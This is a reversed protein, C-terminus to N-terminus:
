KVEVSVQRIVPYADGNASRLTLRYQLARDAAPLPFEGAAVPRWPARPLNAADAASRVAVDVTSGFRKAAEVQVRGIRAAETWTFARSQFTEEYRRSYINGIDQVWMYHPGHVPLYQVEPCAFRHGDNFYIPSETLHGADVSHATFALDLRGDGNFDAIVVESASDVTLATRRLPAFGTASGWFIYSPLRERSLEGHYHPSVIDLFGDGDVDAVALGLPTMGPLWQANSQRWGAAGGWYLTTGTDHHHAVRDEYSAVLLDLWGDGNLDAAELDIPGATTLDTRHDNGYGRPGGWYTVVKDAKYCGVVIDLWGDRDFDAILCGISRGPVRVSKRQEKNFGQASGYYIVLETEDSGPHEFSGLVLDLYGDGNLDAVNISGLGLERLVQHRSPDYRTPGPGAIAGTTGGWYINAGVAPDRAQDEPGVDGGDIVVLDVRGDGNLDAASSKYGSRNAIESMSQRSFGKASGWYLQLPVAEDLTRRQSNAFVAVPRAAANLRVLSVDSAGETPVPSGASLGRLGNGFFVLSLAEKTAAGQHVAVLLDGHGDFDVDGITAAVASPVTLSLSRDVAPGDPGGWLVHVSPVATEGPAILKQNVLVLDLFDDDDLRGVAIQTAPFAKVATVVDGMASPRVHFLTGQNTGVWLADPTDAGTPMCAMCRLEPRLTGPDGLVATGPVVITRGLVLTKRTLDLDLVQLGQPTLLVATRQPGPGLKGVVVDQAGPVGLDQFHSLLFGEPGGWYVRVIRGPPQGFLWGESNVTIIDPWGDGNLDGVACGVVGNVPLQRTLRQESWGNAGGWAIALSARDQQVNQHNPMFVLDTFGDRNLDAAAVRGSGDVEFRTAEMRRDATSMALTAPVAAYIDHTSNFLLDLSGNQDLDYRHITELGGHAPVYLNQGSNGPTGEAFTRGQDTWSQGAQAWPSALAVVFAALLAQVRSVLVPPYKM